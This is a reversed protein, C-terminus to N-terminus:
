PAGELWGGWLFYGSTLPMCQPTGKVEWSVFHNRGWRRFRFCFKTSLSQWFNSAKPVWSTASFCMLLQCIHKQKFYRLAQFQKNKFFRNGVLMHLFVVLCRCTCAFALMSHGSVGKTLPSISTNQGHGFFRFLPIVNKFTTYKAVLIQRIHLHVINYLHFWFMSCNQLWFNYLRWHIIYWPFFLFVEGLGKTQKGFFCYCYCCWKGFWMVWGWRSIHQYLLMGPNTGECQSKHLTRALGFACRDPKKRKM